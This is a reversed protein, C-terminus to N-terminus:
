GARFIHIEGVRGDRHRGHDPSIRHPMACFDTTEMRSFPLSPDKLPALLNTPLNLRLVDTVPSITGHFSHRGNQLRM